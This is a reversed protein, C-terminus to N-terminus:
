FKTPYCHNSVFVKLTYNGPVNNLLETTSFNFVQNYGINLDSFNQTQVEGDDIQWSLDFSNIAELGNGTVIGTVAKEGAFYSPVTISTLALDFNTPTLLAVDDIYWYNINYSNGIFFFSFQLEDSNLLDPNTIEITKTQAPLSSAVTQAWLNTWPGGKTRVSVGIQYNNGYHDVMHKFSFVLISADEGSLNIAPTVLRTEGNFAPSWNLRAEPATGGANATNVASWNGSQSTITWGSAPWTGSFNEQIFYQQAQVGLVAIALLLFTFTRKM